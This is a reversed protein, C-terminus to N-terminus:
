RQPRRVKPPPVRLLPRLAGALIPAVYSVLSEERDSMKELGSVLAFMHGAGVSSLSAHLLEHVLIVTQRELPQGEDVLITLREHLTLGDCPVGNNSEGLDASSALYVVWEAGGITLRLWERRPGRRPPKRTPSVDVQVVPISARKRPM